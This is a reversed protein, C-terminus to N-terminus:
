AAARANCARECTTRHGGPARAAGAVLQALTAGGRVNGLVSGRQFICPVLDGTYTVCLKGLGARRDGPARHGGQAAAVSASPAVLEGAPSV